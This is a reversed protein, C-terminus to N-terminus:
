PHNLTQFTKSDLKLTEPAEPNETRLSLGLVQICTKLSRPGLDVDLGTNLKLIYLPAAVPAQIQHGSRADTYPVYYAM